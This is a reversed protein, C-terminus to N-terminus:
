NLENLVRLAIAESMVLDTFLEGRLAGLAAKFKAKGQVVGFRRPIKQIDSIAMGVTKDDAKNLFHGNIDYPRGYIMGAVQAPDVNPFISAKHARWLPMSDISEETGLGCILLQAQKAVELTQKISPEEIFGQRVDDNIIYLPGPITYYHADYKTAAWQTMRMSGTSSHYRMNEGIFQVFTLDDRESKAFHSIVDYITEGWSLGVIQCQKILAQAQIAAFAAVRDDRTGINEPDKIVYLQQIKFHQKLQQELEVSREYNSHVTIEVIGSALAEDLYKLILYRSLSYKEVMKNIPMKSFYYDQALQGLLHVHQADMM